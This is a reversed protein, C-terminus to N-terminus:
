GHCIVGRARSVTSDTMGLGDWGPSQATHARASTEDHYNLGFDAIM